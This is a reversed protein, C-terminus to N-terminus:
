GPNNCAIMFSCFRTYIGRECTMPDSIKAGSFDNDEASARGPVNHSWCGHKDQRFWHYDTGDNRICLAIYWGEDSNLPGSFTTCRKFKAAAATNDCDFVGMGSLLDVELDEHGSINLAYAYCNESSTKSEFPLADAAM